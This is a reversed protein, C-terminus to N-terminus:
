LRLTSKFERSEEYTVCVRRMRKRLFIANSCHFTEFKGDYFVHRITAIDEKCNGNYYSIKMECDVRKNNLVSAM